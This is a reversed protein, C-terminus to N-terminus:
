AYTLSERNDWVNDFAQNGDAYLSTDAVTDYRYIRWEAAAENESGVAASSFGVYIYQVNAGTGRLTRNPLVEVTGGGGGGELVAIKDFIVATPAPAEQVVVRDQLAEVPATPAATPQVLVVSGNQQVLVTPTPASQPLVTGATEESVLVTSSGEDVLVTSM